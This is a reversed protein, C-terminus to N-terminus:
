APVRLPEFLNRLWAVASAQRGSWGDGDESSPQALGSDILMLHLRSMRIVHAVRPRRRRECAALAAPELGHRELEQALVAADEIALAGGQSLIPSFAHASDGVLAV